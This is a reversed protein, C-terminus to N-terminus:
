GALTPSPSMWRDGRERFLLLVARTGMFAAGFAIWLWALGGGCALVILAAPAFVALVVAQAQALYANDGAGILIGDLVFVVGAVPQAVAAIILAHPMLDLVRPDDTFLGALVTACAVLILGTIVGYGAGWRVMRDALRRTGDREGSGLSAGVLTQASIGLGDLAFALFSWISLTLQMAALSADGTRAAAWTMLVLAARLLLTRVILPIGTRATDLLGGRDPVLRGSADRVQRVVVATVAAAALTQAILSGTASGALGMRPAPGLGYVLVLNAAINGLNAIVAVVLPTRVDKVGRLVGVAALMVLMPVAGLWAIHLYREAQGAVRHDAGFLAVLPTTVLEGVITVGVGVLVALWIGDMGRTLAGPRDGAGVYRAVTATTGYALFICGSVVTSLVASAIGLGALQPTGLHGVIASDALLFLPETVLAFFSALSIRLIEGAGTAAAGTPDAAQQSVVGLIVTGSSTLRNSERSHM